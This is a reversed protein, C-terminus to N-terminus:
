RNLSNLGNLWPTATRFSGDTEFDIDVSEMLEDCPYCGRKVFAVRRPGGPALIEGRVTYPGTPLDFITSDGITAEKVVTSGPLGDVMPGRPTFTWRVKTERPHTERGIEAWSVKARSGYQTLPQEPNVAGPEMGDLKWVFDRVAGRRSDFETDHPQDDTPWLEFRFGKRNYTLLAEAEIRFIGPPVEQRWRGDSEVKPKFTAVAGTDELSKGRLLVQLRINSQDIPKGSRDTIRGSLVGPRPQGSLPPVVVSASGAAEPTAAPPTSPVPTAAPSTTASPLSLGSPKAVPAASSCMTLGLANQRIIWLAVVMRGAQELRFVQGGSEAPAPVPTVAWGAKALGQMFGAHIKNLRAQDASDLMWGLYEYDACPRGMVTSIQDLGGRIQGAPDPVTFPQDQFAVGVLRSQPVMQAQAPAILSVVGALTILFRRM